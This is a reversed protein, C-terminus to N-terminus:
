KHTKGVEREHLDRARREATRGQSSRGGRQGFRCWLLPDVSARACVFEVQASQRPKANKVTIIKTPLSAEPTSVRQTRGVVGGFSARTTQDELYKEASARAPVASLDVGGGGAALADRQRCPEAALDLM